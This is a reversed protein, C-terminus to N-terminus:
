SALGRRHQPRDAPQPGTPTKLMFGYAAYVDLSQFVSNRQQYDLYDLWSLHFRSGLTNTEYLVVLRNPNQYPLPRILAADVFSFIAVSAAIGLTLIVIATLAFGPNKRLQRLAFRLDQSFSEAASEWGASWVKHRVTEASGVEARAARLAQERSMGRRMKDDVSADLFTQLEAQIEANRQNRRFLARIGGILNGFM